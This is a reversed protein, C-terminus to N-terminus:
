VLLYMCLNLFEWDKLFQKGVNLWDSSCDKNKGMRWGVSSRKQWERGTKLKKETGTWQILGSEPIIISNAWKSSSNSPRDYVEKMGGGVKLQFKMALASENNWPSAFETTDQDVLHTYKTRGSRGFNKVKLM